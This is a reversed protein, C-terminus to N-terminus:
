CEIKDQALRKFLIGTAFADSLARHAFLNDRIKYYDCLTILKYNEVDYDYNDNVVYEEYERDWKMKPKKLTKQAIECTDYYKRKETTFDYGHRYLFKLDFPLNHGVINSKGVFSKLSDIVQSYTPAYAVMEDTINNIASADAPIHKGPNILTHFKEVPTWDEFKIAAVEILKDKIASLGTTETDIAIFSGARDYSTKATVNTYKIKEDLESVTLTNHVTDTLTIDVSPIADIKRQFEANDQISKVANEWKRKYAYLQRDVEISIREATFEHTVSDASVFIGWEKLTGMSFRKSFDDDYTISKLLKNMLRKEYKLNHIEKRLTECEEIKNNFKPILELAMIPDNGCKVVEQLDKLLQLVNAYYMKFNTEEEKEKEEKEKEEKEKQEKKAKEVCEKCKGYTDVKLFLGQKGCVLCKSM